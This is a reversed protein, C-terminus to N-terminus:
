LNGIGLSFHSLNEMTLKLKKGVDNNVFEFVTCGDDENVKKKVLCKAFSEALAEVDGDEANCEISEVFQYEDRSKLDLFKLHDKIWGIFKQANGYVDFILKECQLRNRDLSFHSLNEMTLKLKKGVDNNVFEFVTCGDDECAMASVYMASVEMASVM